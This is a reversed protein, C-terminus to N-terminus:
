RDLILFRRVAGADRDLQFAAEIAAAAADIFIELLRGDGIRVDPEMIEIRFALAARELARGVM